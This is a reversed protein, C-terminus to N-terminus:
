QESYLKTKRVLELEMCKKETEVRMNTERM